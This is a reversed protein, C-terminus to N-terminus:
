KVLHAQLSLPLRIGEPSSLVVSLLGSSERLDLHRERPWTRNPRSMADSARKSALEMCCVDWDDIRSGTDVLLEDPLSLLSPADLRPM